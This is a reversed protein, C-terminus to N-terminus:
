ARLTCLTYRHHDISTQICSSCQAPKGVWSLGAHGWGAPCSRAHLRKDQRTKCPETILRPQVACTATSCAGSLACIHASSVPTISSSLQLNLRSIQGVCDESLRSLCYVSHGLASTYWSLHQKCDKLLRCGASVEMTGGAPRFICPNHAQFLWLQENTPSCLWFPFFGKERVAEPLAWMSPFVQAVCPWASSPGGSFGRVPCFACCSSYWPTCPLIVAAPAISVSSPRGALAVVGDRPDKPVYFSGQGHQHISDEVAHVGKKKPCSSLM